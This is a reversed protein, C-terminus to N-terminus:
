TMSRHSRDGGLDGIEIEVRAHRKGKKEGELFPVRGEPWVGPSLDGRVPLNGM